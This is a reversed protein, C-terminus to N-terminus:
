VEAAQQHKPAAGPAGPLAMPKPSGAPMAGNQMDSDELWALLGQAPMHHAETVAASQFPANSSCCPLGLVAYEPHLASM